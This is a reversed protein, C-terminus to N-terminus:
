LGLVSRDLTRLKTPKWVKQISYRLADLCHNYDDIPENIYEGTQKDKRWAYNELEEITQVCKPSVYMKYEQLYNIGMRVSDQGKVSPKARYIGLKRIEEVSKPEASDCIIESKAFGHNKIMQAVGSNTLGKAYGEDFIYLERAKENVLSAIVVSPDNVFGWDVGVCLEGDFNEKDKVEWNNYVLKDLSCFEGLAYIKYYTPNTKIKDELTKIYDETLFRNDRYTTKLIFTDDPIEANPEFWRKYVFKSKSVPNFTLFFQTEGVRERLRLTLQDFDEATLETAEEIWCDTVGTISKIKEPDDLGKLLFSSGNPFGITLDTKNVTCYQLIQWDSLIDLILRWCSERLSVGTKRIILVRRKSVLAKIIIKQCVFVSKGSGAGGVYIEFKKDYQKLYPFYVENFINKNINLEIQM